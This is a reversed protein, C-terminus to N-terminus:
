EQPTELAVALAADAPVHGPAFAKCQLSVLQLRGQNAAPFYRLGAGDRPGEPCDIAYVGPATEAVELYDTSAEKRGDVIRRVRVRLEGGAVPQGNADTLRVEARVPQGARVLTSAPVVDAFLRPLAAKEPQGLRCANVVFRSLRELGCATDRDYIPHTEGSHTVRYHINVVEGIPGGLLVVRGTGRAWAVAVAAGGETTALAQTDAAALEQIQLAPSDALKPQFRQIVALDAGGLHHLPIPQCLADTVPFVDGLSHAAGVTAPYAAQLAPNAQWCPLSIILHVGKAQFQQLLAWEEPRLERATDLIVASLREWAPRFAGEPTLFEAPVLEERTDDGSFVYGRAAFELLYNEYVRRYKADTLAVARSMAGELENLEVLNEAAALLRQRGREYSAADAANLYVLLRSPDGPFLQHRILPEAPDPLAIELNALPPQTPLATDPPLLVLWHGTAQPLAQGALVVPRVSKGLKGLAAALADVTLADQPYYLISIDGPANALLYLPSQFAQMSRFCPGRVAEDPGVLPVHDATSGGGFASHKPRNKWAEERTQTTLDEFPAIVWNLTFESSGVIGPTQIMARWYRELYYAAGRRTVGGIGGTAWSYKPGMWETIFLPRNCVLSERALEALDRAVEDQRGSYRGTYQNIGSIDEHPLPPVSRFSGARVYMVPSRRAYDSGILEAGLDLPQYLAGPFAEPLTAGWCALEVENGAQIVAQFPRNAQSALLAYLAAYHERFSAMDAWGKLSRYSPALTHLFPVGLQDRVDTGSARTDLGYRRLGDVWLDDLLEHGEQVTKAMDQWNYCAMRPFWARGNERITWDPQRRQRLHRLVPSAPSTGVTVVGPQVPLELRAVAQGDTEALLRLTCTTPRRSSWCAIQPVRLLLRGNGSTVGSAVVTEGLRVEGRLRDARLGGTLQATVAVGGQYSLFTWDLCEPHLPRGEPLAPQPAPPPLSGPQFSALYRQWMEPNQALEDEAIAIRDRLSYLRMRAEQVADLAKGLLQERLVAAAPPWALRVEGVDVMMDRAEGPANELRISIGTVVTPEYRAARLPNAPDFRLSQWTGDPLASPTLDGWSEAGAPSKTYLRLLFPFQENLPGAPCRIDVDLMRGTMDLPQPLQVNLFVTQRTKDATFHVPQRLFRRGDETEVTPPAPPQADYLVSAAFSNGTATLDLKGVPREGLAAIQGAFEAPTLHYDVSGLRPRVFQWPADGEELRISAAEDGAQLQALEELWEEAQAIDWKLRAQEYNWRGLLDETRQRELEEPALSQVLEDGDATYAPGSPLFRIEDLRFHGEGEGGSAPVVQFQVAEGLQLPGVQEPDGGRFLRFDAATLQCEQWNEALEITGSQWETGDQRLLRVQLNAPGDAERRAQFVLETLGPVARFLPWNFRSWTGKVQTLLFSRETGAAGPVASVASQANSLLEIRYRLLMPEAGHVFPVALLASSLIWRSLRM